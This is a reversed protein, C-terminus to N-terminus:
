EELTRAVLDAVADPSPDVAVAVVNLALERAISATTTDGCFVPIRSAPLFHAFARAASPSRILLASFEGRVVGGVAKPEEDLPSNVYVVGTHVIWGKARLGEPLSSQALNGAPIIATSAPYNSLLDLLAESSQKAPVLVEEVGYFKIANASGAGIAAFKLSSNTLFVQALSLPAVLSSWFDIGNRSTVIVWGETIKALDLLHLAVNEKGPIIKTFSESTTPIGRSEFAQADRENGTGRILLVPRKIM